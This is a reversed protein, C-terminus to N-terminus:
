ITEDYFHIITLDDKIDWYYLEESLKLDDFRNTLQSFRKSLGLKQTKFKDSYLLHNIAVERNVHPNKLNVLSDIGDTCISFSKVDLFTKTIRSSFYDYTEPKNPTYYALYQPANGEDNDFRVTLDNKDTVFISGDGWFKVTLRSEGKSYVFVVMTSLFNMETLGLLYKAVDLCKHCDLVLSDLMQEDNTFNFKKKSCHRIGSELAYKVFQSAFHSEIGTSCGDLVAGVIVEDDEHIFYSDECHNPHTSARKNLIQIM